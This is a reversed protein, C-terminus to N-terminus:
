SMINTQEPESLMLAELLLYAVDLLGVTTRLWGVEDTEAGRPTRSARPHSPVLKLTKKSPKHPFTIFSFTGAVISAIIHSCDHSIEVGTKLSWM